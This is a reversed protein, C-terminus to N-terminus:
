GIRDRTRAPLSRLLESSRRSRHPKGITARPPDICPTHSALRLERAPNMRAFTPPRQLVRVKSRTRTFCASPSHANHKAHCARMHDEDLLLTVSDAASHARAADGRVAT